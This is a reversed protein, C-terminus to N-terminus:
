KKTSQGSPSSNANTYAKYLLSIGIIPVRQSSLALPEATPSQSVEDQGSGARRAPNVIVCSKATGACDFKIKSGDRPGKRYDFFRMRILLFREGLLIGLLVLRYLPNQPLFNLAHKRALSKIHSIDALFYFIQQTYSIITINYHFIYRTSIIAYYPTSIASGVGPLV